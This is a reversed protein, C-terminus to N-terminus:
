QTEWSSRALGRDVLLDRLALMATYTPLAFVRPSQAGALSADLADALRTRV